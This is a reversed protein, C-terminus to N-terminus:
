EFKLSYYMEQMLEPFEEPNDGLYFYYADAQNDKHLAVILCYKYDQGFTEGVEIMMTAGWDANFEKKVSEKPFTVFDPSQVKGDSVNAIIAYISSRYYDNPHLATSTGDEKLGEEYRELDNDLPNISYRVEFKKDPYKLAYQYGMQYNDIIEAEVLGSPMDFTMNARKLLKKFDNPLENTQSFGSNTFSLLIILLLLLNFKKM